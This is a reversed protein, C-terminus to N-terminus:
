EVHLEDCGSGHGTDYWAEARRLIRRTTELAEPLHEHFRARIELLYSGEYATLQTLAEVHPIRGWGPPMHVDGDGCPIRDNLSNFAGGLRGFNDSTYLHRVYPSAQRIAEM